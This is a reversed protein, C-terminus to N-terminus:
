NARIPTRIWYIPTSAGIFGKSLEGARMLEWSTQFLLTAEEATLRESKEDSDWNYIFVKM